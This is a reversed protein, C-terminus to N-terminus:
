CPALDKKLYDFTDWLIPYFYLFQKKAQILLMLKMSKSELVCRTRSVGQITNVYHLSYGVHIFLLKWGLVSVPDLTDIGDNRHLHIQSM